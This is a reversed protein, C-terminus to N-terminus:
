LKPGNLVGDFGRLEIRRVKVLQPMGPRAQGYAPAGHHRPILGADRVRITSFCQGGASLM